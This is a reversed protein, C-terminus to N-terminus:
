DFKLTCLSLIKKKLSNCDYFMCTKDNVNQIHANSLNIDKLSKCGNFMNFVKDANLTNFNSLDLSILSFCDDFLHSMNIVNQTDFCSFDLHTLRWCGSFMHNIKTINKKFIYEIRYIGEKKFKYMYSFPIKEGNIKIEINEKIDKENDYEPNIKGDKTERKRRYNEYSNIIQIDKNIDHTNINVESIIVNKSSIAKENNFKINSKNTKKNQSRNNENVENFENKLLDSKILEMKFESEPIKNSENDNKLYNGLYLLNIEYIKEINFFKEKIDKIEFSSFPFFLVEKEGPYMSIKESDCHTMLNYELNDNKELIFLVKTEKTSENIHFQIFKEAINKDKHFSLFPKSLIVPIKNKSYNILKNIEDISIKCGGYLIYDNSLPLSKLRVGEYLTKIYPLHKAFKSLKLDNDIDKYFDSEITNLRVYYKSLIEIPINTAEKIPELLQKVRKNGISYTDYLYKTYKQIDEIPSLDILAKYYLPLMKNNNDLYEFTSPIKDELTQIEKPSDKILFNKIEKFSTFIGCFDFINNDKNLYAKNYEIFKEKNGTFVIIKPYVFIQTLIEKFVLVFKSYLRGSLIIKIEEFHLNRIYKIADNINKFFKINSIKLYQLEEQYQLNEKSDINEDIWIVNLNELSM